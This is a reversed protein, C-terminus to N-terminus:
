DRFVVYRLPVIQALNKLFLERRMLWYYFGSIAFLRHFESKLVLRFDANEVNLHRFERAHFRRPGDPALEGPCAYDEPRLKGVLNVDVLDALDNFDTSGGGAYPKM